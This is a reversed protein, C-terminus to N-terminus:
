SKGSLGELHESRLTWKVVEHVSQGKHLLYTLGCMVCRDLYDNLDILKTLRTRLEDDSFKRVDM